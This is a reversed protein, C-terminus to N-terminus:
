ARPGVPTGEDSDAVPAHLRHDGDGREINRLSEWECYIELAQYVISASLRYHRLTAM